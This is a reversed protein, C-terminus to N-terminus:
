KVVNVQKELFTGKRGVFHCSSGDVCGVCVVDRVIGSNSQSGEEEVVSTSRDIGDNFGNDVKNRNTGHVFGNDGKVILPLFDFGGTVGGFHREKM